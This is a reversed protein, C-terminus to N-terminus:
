GSRAITSRPRGSRSPRSSSRSIRAASPTALRISGVRGISTSLPRTPSSCRSRPKSLPASSTSPLGDSYTLAFPLRRFVPRGEDDVVTVPQGDEIISRLADERPEPLIVVGDPLPLGVDTPDEAPEGPSPLMAQEAWYAAEAQAATRGAAREQARVTAKLAQLAEQRGGIAQLAEQRGGIAQEPLDYTQGITFGAFLTEVAARVTDTEGAALAARVLALADAAAPIIVEPSEGASAAQAELQEVRAACALQDNELDARFSNWDDATIKGNMYDRRVRVMSEDAQAAERRASELEAATQASRAGAAERVLQLSAEVDIGVDALYDGITQDVAAMDVRFGDCTGAKRGSCVYRGRVGGDRLPDLSVPTMVAGCSHRMLQGNLLHGAKPRKGGGRGRKAAAAERARNAADFLEVPIIAEHKAPVWELEGVENEDRIEGLYTRSRLMNSLSGQQWQRGRLPRSGEANLVRAVEAQAKGAAIMQFIRLMTAAQANPRLGLAPDRDYGYVAGGTHKRERRRRAMGRRVAAAKRRSDEKNREGMVMTLIPNTFTFDDECSRLRVNARNAWFMVEVLHQASGPADGAGRAFRDSHQVVLMCTGADVAAKTAAARAATLGDGRNGHYASASDDSHESVVSWGADEAMKRGDVLQDPISGRRDRTSKAAYLVCPIGDASM